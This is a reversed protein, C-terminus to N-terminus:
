QFNTGYTGYLLGTNARYKLTIIDLLGATTSLTPAVGNNQWEVNTWTSITHSGGSGQTIYLTYTYGDLLNTPMALTANNNNLTLRANAGNTVNWTIVAGSTLAQETPNWASSITIGAANSVVNIQNATGNLFGRTLTTASSAWIIQGATFGGAFGHGGRTAGLTGTTANANAFDVPGFAFANAGTVLLSQGVTSSTVATMSTGNGILNGILNTGITLTPTTTPNSVSGIFGNANTFSFATVSGGSALTSYQLGTATPNVVLVQGASGIALRTLVGSANRIYIDGTADTGAVNM